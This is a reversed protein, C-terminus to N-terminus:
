LELLPRDPQLVGAALRKRQDLGLSRSQSWKTYFQQNLKWTEAQDSVVQPETWNM